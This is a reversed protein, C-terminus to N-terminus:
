KVKLYKKLSIYYHMFYYIIETQLIIGFLFKINGSNLFYQWRLRQICAANKQNFVTDTMQGSHIRYYLLVDDLNMMKKNKFWARVWLDYDEGYEIIIYNDLDLFLSKKALITPHYFESKWPLKKVIENHERKLNSVIDIEKDREDIYQVNAGVLDVDTNKLLFDMQLELRQHLAIDDADMRAIYEGKALAIGKNLTKSLKLNIENKVYVIRNDEKALKQLIEGTKDISCDNICIIELNTYTQEMISRVAKEVFKEANYCPIIVSILPNSSMIFIIIFIINFM